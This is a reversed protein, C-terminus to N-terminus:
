QSPFLYFLGFHNSCWAPSHATNFQLFFRSADLAYWVSLPFGEKTKTTDFIFWLILRATKKLWFGAFCGDTPFMWTYFTWPFELALFVALFELVHVLWARWSPMSTSSSACLTLSLSSALCRSWSGPGCGHSLRGWVHTWDRACACVMWALIARWFSNLNLFTLVTNLMLILWIQTLVPLFVPPKGTRCLFPIILRINLLFVEEMILGSHM